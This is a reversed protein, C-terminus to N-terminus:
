ARQLAGDKVSNAVVGLSLVPIFYMWQFVFSEIYPNTFAALSVAAFGGFMYVDDNRLTRKAFRDAFTLGYVLFTSAYVLTGILGVRLLTAMPIVEYRWPFDASRLYAVGIGHGVGLGYSNRVGEWLAAIQETRESGGGSFLEDLFQQFITLLDFADVFQDIILLVAIGLVALLFTPVLTRLGGQDRGDETQVRSRFVAGVILGIPVALILASRGSTIACVLVLAPLVIRRWRGPVASPQAFLAGTLFILSGYVIINAAAIGGSVNVNAQESLFSVAQKGFVLFAWFFVAVEIVAAWTFRILMRVLREIGLQQTLTAGIILWMFPSLIYVLITQTVAARPARHAYGIWVFLATVVVGLFYTTMLRDLYESKRIVLMSLLTGGVILGATPAQFSHPFVVCVFLTALLWLSVVPAALDARARRLPLPEALLTTM